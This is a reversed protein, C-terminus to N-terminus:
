DSKNEGESQEEDEIVRGESEYVDSGNHKRFRKRVKPQSQEGYKDLSSGLYIIMSIWLIIDDIFGIGFVPEPILDIPSLLYIIGFIILFKKSKPTEPDKMFKNIYRFRSFFRIVSQIM